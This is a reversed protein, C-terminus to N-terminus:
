ASRYNAFNQGRYQMRVEVPRTFGREHIYPGVKQSLRNNWATQVVFDRLDYMNMGQRAFELDTFPYNCPASMNVVLLHSDYTIGLTNGVTERKRLQQIGERVLEAVADHGSDSSKLELSRGQVTDEDVVQMLSVDPDKDTNVGLAAFVGRRPNSHDLAKKAELLYARSKNSYNEAWARVGSAMAAGAPPRLHEALKTLGPYEQELRPLVNTNFWKHENIAQGAAALDTDVDRQITPRQVRRAAACRALTAALADRPPAAAPARGPDPATTRANTRARPAAVARSERRAVPREAIQCQPM